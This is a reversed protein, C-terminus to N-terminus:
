ARWRSLTSSLLVGNAWYLGTPGAPLLDYTREGAYPVLEWGSVRSGDVVDGVRVSGLPRGDATRHGPSAWLQRGDALTLHVMLHSSPVPTSGVEIVSAAVRSGDPAQTWVLTGVRIATVVVDGTPTSILTAASLCIPCNPRAGQSRSGVSVTGAASVTGSVRMYTGDVTYDFTYGSGSLQLVLARLKKFARYLTLKQADDLAAPPAPLHEHVVIASYLEANDRIQAYNALASAQEGGLRAVPYFDPDCFAPPGLDDFVRFELQYQNLPTGPATTGCAMAALLVVAALARRM